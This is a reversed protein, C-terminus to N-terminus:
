WRCPDAVSTRVRYPSVEYADHQKIAYQSVEGNFWHAWGVQKATEVARNIKTRTNEDAILEKMQKLKAM